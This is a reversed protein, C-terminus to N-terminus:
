FPAAESAEVAEDLQTTSQSAMFAEMRDLRAKLEANEDRLQQAVGTSNAENVWLTHITKSTVNLRVGEATEFKAKAQEVAEMRQADTQGRTLKPEIALNEGVVRINFSTGLIGQAESLSPVAM